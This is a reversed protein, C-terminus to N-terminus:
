RNLIMEQCYNTDPFSNKLIETQQRKTSIILNRKEEIYASYKKQRLKEKKKTQSKQYRRSVTPWILTSAIMAGSMVLSPLARSLTTDGSTLSNVATFGTIMSTMSMTVMPGITLLASQEQNDAKAPPADLNVNLTELHNIYRPTRYFYDSEEYLPMDYEEVEETFESNNYVLNVPPINNVLISSLNKNNVCLYINNVQGSHQSIYFFQLGMIFVVDGIKLEKRNTIRVKNVFVGYKSNNDVIYVKGNELIIKASSEELIQYYIVDKKGGGVTIGKDLLNSINYYNYQQEVPSSYLLINNKEKSNELTYFHYEELDFYPKIMNNEICYVEKNSTMRWNQEYPEISILNKKIGNSDTDSIWYSGDHKIPLIIDEIKKTKILSVRM